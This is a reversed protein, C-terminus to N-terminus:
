LLPPVERHQPFPPRMLLHLQIFLIWTSFFCIRYIDLLYWTISSTELLKLILNPSQHPIILALGWGHPFVSSDAANAGSPSCSPLGLLSSTPQPAWGTPSGHGSCIFFLFILLIAWHFQSFSLFFAVSVCGCSMHCVCVNTGSSWYIRSFICLKM